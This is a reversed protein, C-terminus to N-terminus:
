SNVRTVDSRQTMIMLVNNFSYDHFKSLMRLYAAFSKDSLVSEIGQELTGLTGALRLNPTELPSAVAPMAEPIQPRYEAERM